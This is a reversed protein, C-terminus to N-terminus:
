DRVGRLLGTGLQTQRFIDGLPNGLTLVNHQTQNTVLSIFSWVEMRDVDHGQRNQQPPNCTEIVALEGFQRQSCQGVVDPFCSDRCLNQFGLDTGFVLLLEKPSMAGIADFEGFHGTCKAGGRQRDDGVMM